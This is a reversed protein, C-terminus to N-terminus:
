VRSWVHEIRRMTSAIGLEPNALWCGEKWKYISVATKRLFLEEDKDVIGMLDLNVMNDGISVLVNATEDSDFVIMGAELKPMEKSKKM